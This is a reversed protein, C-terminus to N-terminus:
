GDPYVATGEWQELFPNSDGSRYQYVAAAQEPLKEVLFKREIEM